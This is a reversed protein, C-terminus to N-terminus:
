KNIYKKTIFYLFLSYIYLQIWEMKKNKILINFFIISINYINIFNHKNFSILVFNFHTIPKLKFM